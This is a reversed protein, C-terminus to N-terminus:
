LFRHRFFDFFHRPNKLKPSRYFVGTLSVDQLLHRFCLSFSIFSNIRHQLPSTHGHQLAAGCRAPVVIPPSPTDGRRCSPPAAVSSTSRVRGTSRCTSARDASSTDPDTTRVSYKASVKRIFPKYTAIWRRAPTNQIKTGHTIVAKGM